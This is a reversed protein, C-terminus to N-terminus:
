KDTSHHKQHFEYMNSPDQYTSSSEAEEFVPTQPPNYFVNGDIEAVDEQVLEDTNENLVPSNPKTTVQIASLSVIQPAEDEKVVISSSSSTNENDLTNADFNALVELSSMAYYEEYLPGFLNDLDTKLSVSQSDKSSDQFNMCNFEPESNNCKSAM